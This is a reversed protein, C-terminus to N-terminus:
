CGFRQQKSIERVVVDSNLSVRSAKAKSIEVVFTSGDIGVVSSQWGLAHVKGGQTVWEPVTGDVQLAVKGGDVSVVKADLTEAAFASACSMALASIVTVKKILHNM